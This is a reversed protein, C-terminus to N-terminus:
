IYQPLRFYLLHSRVKLTSILLSNAVMVHSFTLAWVENNTHLIGRGPCEECNIFGLAILAREVKVVCVHVCFENEKECADCMCAQMCAYMCAHVLARVCVCVTVHCTAMILCCVCLRGSALYLLCWMTNVNYLLRPVAGLLAVVIFSARTCVTM